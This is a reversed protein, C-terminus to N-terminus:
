TVFTLMKTMEEIFFFFVNQDNGDIKMQALGNSREEQEIKRRNDPLYCKLSEFTFSISLDL